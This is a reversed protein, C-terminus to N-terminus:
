SAPAPAKAEVAFVHVPAERGRLRQPGLDELTWVADPELGALADASALQEPDLKQLDTLVVRAGAERAQHLGRALLSTKGVQRPGKM